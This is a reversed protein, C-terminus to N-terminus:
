LELWFPFHFKTHQWSVKLPHFGVELCKQISKMVKDLGNRRSIFTYKQPVLTDLSINILDLGAKKLESVVRYLTIGNTTM